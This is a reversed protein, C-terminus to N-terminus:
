DKGFVSSEALKHLRERSVMGREALEHHASCLTILNSDELRQEWQERLPEIHHVSLQSYNFSRATLAEGDDLCLRCLFRDRQKIRERKAKWASSGRFKDEERGESKKYIKQPCQEGFKHVRGCINCSKYIARVGYLYLPQSLTM